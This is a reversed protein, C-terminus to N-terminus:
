EEVEGESERSEKREEGSGLGRRVELLINEL